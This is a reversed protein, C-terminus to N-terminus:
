INKHYKSDVTLFVAYEKEGYSNAARVIYEGKDDQLCRKIELKYNNRDYKKLYKTSQRMEVNDRYWSVVPPSVAIIRCDFEANQGELVHANRPRLTFRPAAERRDWSSNYIKYDQPKNKRLSSWDAMRGLPVIQDPYEAYRDRIRQRINDFRNSPIRSDREPRDERLWPHDLADHVTMRAHRNKLVLKQIFDKGEDSIGGFAEGPFRLDCKRINEATADDDHGGFPSLGSLLVYSLVGAAWMDTYFGIPEHEVIEPAAFEVTATSVKVIDNPDLKTALGFDCIKVNTSNRTECMINEPKLDLHVTHNEHMHKLGECIQRMYKIAEAETMKYNPDAIRDFLEGGAIFETVTAMEEEDEFADHLHLLKPHNLDSMVEIERRVTAKDAATPTPIFKAAYTKGTAKEICRHVVGFAGRGIEELIDYYDYISGHKLTARPPQRGKDWIDWFCRDYNDLKPLDRRKRRLLDDDQGLRRRRLADSDNTQVPQTPKSPEGAGHVNEATVRFQYSKNPLLNQVNYHPFRSIGAKVWKGTDPDLKEIIYNTIYSGGDNEPPRWSLEVSDDTVAKVEPTSPADPVDSVHLRLTATDEGLDNDLKIEYPGSTNKDTNRITVTVARPSVDISVNKDKTLDKGDKTLTVNPLPSGTYPIKLVIPEGKDYNLVDQYKLPLRIRPPSRVDVNCRCMRSGGINRAKISYEDVDDPTANNIVLICKDGERTMSYKLNDSLERTGKYWEIDPKPTGIVEAELRITKGENGQIDKLRKLFEPPTSANPDKVKTLKSPESPIGRGAENEAIVRFEYDHDEILSPVTYRNSQCPSINVPIWKDSNSERKEVWYGTIPGGGDSSPKDWNLAISHNTIENVEPQGPAGPPKFPLQAIIPNSSRLPESIGNENMAMVRFEYEHGDLLSPVIFSTDKCNQTVPIWADPGRATDRREVVYGTVKSGGDDKPPKWSLTARDKSVHSIDLPGTPPLPPALVKVKLPINCSGSDNAVNIIYKGTDDREVDPITVVIFDDYEHVRVRDNDPLTEDDKKVKFTFPGKGQIPIKLKLTDGLPIHQEEPERLLKPPTKVRFMAECSDRGLPNIIECSITSNNDTEWVDLITLTSTSEDPKTSIRYRGGSALELGNRSWKVEPVPNADYEIAFTVEGNAPVNADTAKKVFTPPRGNPFETIKVRGTSSSPEGEGAKNVAKVRFEFEGNEPLDTIMANTDLATFPMAKTWQDSGIPKKEVIYGTIKSGGDNTPPTWTLEVYNKGVKKLEPMGPSSPPVSDPKLTVPRDTTAYNGWGAINKAKVRFEYPKGIQLNNITFDNGRLPYDNAIEWTDSDPKRIEVQYGTIKSGGDSRPKDWKLTVSNETQNAVELNTPAQPPDFPHKAIIPKECELPQSQGYINEASVRFKYESGENLGTVEYFPVRCFSSVKQWDGKKTDLKEIIYNTIPAGNDNKPPKWTLVCSDPKIDSIELPGEPKDPKDVVIVKIPVTDQGLHNKLTCTYNGSDDTTVKPIFLEAVGDKVNIQTNGDPKIEHFGNTFTVEPLPSGVFPVAIKLDDGARVIIEKPNFASFGIARPVVDPPRAQIFGDTNAYEGPGAKNVAAVRFEYEKGNALGPVTYELGPITERNVPVWRDTGKERKEVLYGRIPNGGDNQPRTWQLTISDTTHGICEPTGPAEPPKFPWKAKIPADIVLPESIGNDNEACVRFEYNKGEELGKVDCTTGRVSPGVKVWKETGPERREVIYHKVDSGGDEKPPKWNLTCGDATINTAELPGEPKTPPSLVNVRFQIQSSGESNKLVLKYIGADGRQSSRNLLTAVNDLTKVNVRDDSVLDQDNILWQAQAKPIAKYPIHVEFDKGEKVTIDKISNLDLFSPKEPQDQVTIADTPRSPESPGAENVAIVRFSVEEGETLNPVTYTCDRAPLEAAQTWDRNNPTRQEIIYGTVKSGGDNLPKKWSLTVSDKTIKDVKPQDPADAPFIPVEAKQPKTPKSPAGPGADNVAAVRFEYVRGERLNSAIYETGKVPITNCPAWENRGKERMEVNYGSIPNGGDKKPKEWKLKMYTSNYETIEPTDPADPPDYPPKVLITSTTELPESIGYANEAKVRFKYKKNTELDKVTGKPETFIGPVKEWKDSNEPCKEIIYGRIDGGGNDKPPKWQLSVSDKTTETAELPGEPTGPKDLVIVDIDCEDEGSDNKLQVKYKGTDSRKASPKHLKAHVDDSELQTDRTPQVPEGDKAWTVTPTPSGSIPLDITLPEGAKVRIEKKGLPGFLASLDFSPKEKEPKAVIGGSSDSPEGPGAENVATVRYEYEKNPTVNDDVFNTGKHLDGRNIDTWDKKKPGKERREIIYGKIPNGGDSRPPSWKIEIHDRDRSACEPTGPQGPETFPNKVLVPKETVLPESLGNINEAMVRFDYEHGEKLKTLTVQTGNIPDNCRVWEGTKKDRKEVVYNTIDKGGTDTPAMWALTVSSKTVEKPVLPGRPITPPGLVIVECQATEAGSSNELRLFYEGSDSRLAKTIVLKALKDTQTLQTRDDPTLETSGRQWTMTPLPEAAYPAELTITQGQKVTISKLAVKNIRPKLFRPKAIVARSPESPESPGAKNVAVVRFEYEKGESLGGCAGKCQRADIEAGKQWQDRGKERREILYKEIPAGGDTTPARWELDVHDKDWDTVEPKGPASPEDYPNKALIAASTELADSEGEKNVARVRFLYEKGPTLKTVNMSTTTGSVEGAPTWGGRAVDQKELVYKEIPCGGNDLPPKWSVTCSEKTIDAVKMPGEPKSPRDVVTVDVPVKVEGKANKLTLEYKGTDDRKSKDVNLKCKRQDITTQCQGDNPQIIKGDKTWQMTPIPFAEYPVDIEIPRGAKVTLSKPLRNLDLRPPKDCEKVTLKCSDKLDGCQFSIDGADKLGVNKLLLRFNNQENTVITNQDPYIPKGDKLWKGRSDPKNLRVEFVVDQEETANTDKLGREIRLAPRVTLDCSTTMVGTKCEYKGKDRDPHLKKIVLKRVKGYSIEEHKDPTLEPLLREGNFYWECEADEDQVTCELEIKDNEDGELTQPLKSEFRWQPEEVYLYGTTKIGRDDDIQCTYQGEDAKTTKQIRLICRTMDQNYKFRKDKDFDLPIGNKFWKVPANPDNVHCELTTQKTRFVEMKTPLEKYFDYLPKAPTVTLWASTEIDNVRCFYKGADDPHLKYITLKQNPGISDFHYKLGHFIEVKNKLWRIRSSPKCFTCEFTIEGDEEKCSLDQLPEIFSEKEKEPRKVKQLAPWDPIVEALSPRRSKSDRRVKLLSEQDVRRLSQRRDDMESARRSGHDSDDADTSEPQDTRIHPAQFQPMVNLNSGSPRKPINAAPAARRPGAEEYLPEETQITPIRRDTEDLNVVPPTSIKPIESQSVRLQEVPQKEQLKETPAKDKKDTPAKDKKDTPVKDKKDTPEKDKKDTPEKDKKDTPEKDKKDTPKRVRKTKGRKEKITVRVPQTAQGAENWAECMWDGSDEVYGDPITLKATTGDYEQIFDASPKVEKKNLFWTIEPTPTGKVKCQIQVKDGDNATVEKPKDSFVPAVKRDGAAAAAAAPPAATDKAEDSPISKPKTKEQDEEDQPPAAETDVHLNVLAHTDGADNKALIKYIGSDSSTSNLIDLTCLYTDDAEKKKSIKYKNPTDKIETKAKKWTIKPEQKGKCRYEIKISKQKTDKTIKPKELSPALKDLQELNAKDGAIKISINAVSTGLENSITCKYLGSDSSALNKIELFISYKNGGKRDMRTIYKDVNLLDKGDKTWYISPSPDAAIDIQVVATKADQKITPKGLFSPALGDPLKFDIGEINLEISASGDGKANKATAKYIGSDKQGVQGFELFIKHTNGETLIGQKYKTGLVIPKGGLTWVFSPVPDATCQCELLVSEEFMRVEPPKTFTPRGGTGQDENELNLAIHANSEGLKNKALVKYKGGDSANVDDIELCAVYTNNPLADCYILYRGSNQISVDDRSWFLDPKPEASIKCEFILRKGDNEQRITPKQIFVPTTGEASNKADNTETDDDDDSALNLNINATTEGAKNKVVIKYTGADNANLESIELAVNYTNGTAIFITQAHKKTNSLKNDNHLWTIEPKPTGQVQCELFLRTADDPIQRINPPKSFRPASAAM